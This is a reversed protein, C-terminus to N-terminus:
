ERGSKNFTTMTIRMWYRKKHKAVRPVCVRKHFRITSGEHNVFGPAKGMLIEERIREVQPDMVQALCIEEILTPQVDMAHLTSKARPTIENLELKQFEECLDVPLKM